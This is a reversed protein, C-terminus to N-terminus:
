KKQCSGEHWSTMNCKYGGPCCNFFNGCITADAAPCCYWRGTSLQGCTTGAPCHSVGGPCAVADNPITAVTPQEVSFEPEVRHSCDAGSYGENCYCATNNAFCRGHGSCKSKACECQKDVLNKVFPAMTTDFYHEIEAISVGGVAPDGWVLNAETNPYEFPVKFEATLDGSSLFKKADHSYRM